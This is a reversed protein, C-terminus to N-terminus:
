DSNIISEDNQRRKEAIIFFIGDRCEVNIINFKQKIIRIITNYSNNMFINYCKINISRIDDDSVKVNIIRNFKKLYRKDIDWIYLKGNQRLINFIKDIIYKKSYRLFVDKLTFFLVCSDYSNEDLLEEKNKNFIYEVEFNKNNEKYRDYIIKYNNFAVDLVDGRLDIDSIDLIIESM